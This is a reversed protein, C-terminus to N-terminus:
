TKRTLTSFGKWVQYAEKRGKKRGEKRGEKRGKKREEKRGKKREEKREKKREEKRGKKREEKEIERSHKPINKEVHELTDTHISYFPPITTFMVSLM